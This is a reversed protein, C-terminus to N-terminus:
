PVVGAQRQRWRLQWGPLWFLLAIALVLLLHVWWFGMWLPVVGKKLFARGIGLLNSYMFYALILAVLGLHWSRTFYRTAILTALAPLLLASLPMAIRWEFESRYYRSGGELLTLTPVAASGGHDVLDADKIRVAYRRFGTIEFDRQGPTGVFRTGDSFVVFRDGTRPDTSFYGNDSRMVGEKGTAAKGAGAKGAGAQSRDPAPPAAPDAAGPGPPKEALRIFVGKARGHEKSIEEVYVVRGAGGLESFQGADVGAFRAEQEAEERIDALRGEARPVLYFSLVAVFCLAVGGLKLTARLWLRTGQGFSEMAVLENAGSLRIFAAFTALFFCLPINRTLSTTVKLFLMQGILGAALKGQAADALYRSFVNTMYILLLVALIQLFGHLIERIIYRELIM